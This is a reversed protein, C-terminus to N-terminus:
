RGHVSSLPDVPARRGGALELTDEADKLARAPTASQGLPQEPLLASPASHSKKLRFREQARANAPEHAQGWLKSDVTSLGGQPARSAEAEHALVAARLHLLDAAHDPKSLPLAATAFAPDGLEPKRRTPRWALGSARHALLRLRAIRWLFTINGVLYRSGLRRPELALRYVWEVGLRRMLLPARPYRQALFDLIAGGAVIVCPHALADRMLVAVREQKPMGMGLLILDPRTRAALDVYVLDPEFGGRIAVPEAGLRKCTTAAAAAYRLESGFFATRQPALARILAPILDTGNMDVGPARGLARLAIAMGSGDRLRLDADALCEQFEGDRWATNVAHANVFTVVLPASASRIEEFLAVRAADSPVLRVSDILRLLRAARGPSAATEPVASAASASDAM